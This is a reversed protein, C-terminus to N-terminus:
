IKDCNFSDILDKLEHVYTISAIYHKDESVCLLFEDDNVSSRKIYLNAKGTQLKYWGDIDKKWGNNELTKYNLYTPNLRKESYIGEEKLMRIAWKAGETFDGISRLQLYAVNNQHRNM